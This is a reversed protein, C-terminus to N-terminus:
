ALINKDFEFFRCELDLTLLYKQYELKKTKRSLRIYGRLCSSSMCIIISSTHSVDKFIERDEHCQCDSCKRKTLPNDLCCDGYDYFCSPNNNFDDCVGDGSKLDVCCDRGDYRCYENHNEANCIKDNVSKFNSCCDPWDFDCVKNKNEEDCTGDGIRDINPCCDGGDFNCVQNHNEM